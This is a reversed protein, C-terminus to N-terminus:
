IPNERARRYANLTEVLREITRTSRAIMEVCAHHDSDSTQLGNQLQESHTRIIAIESRIEHVIVAIFNDPSVQLWERINEPNFHEYIIKEHETEVM